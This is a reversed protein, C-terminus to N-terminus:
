DIDIITMRPTLYRNYYNNELRYIIDVEKKELYKEMKDALDWGIAEVANNNHFFYKGHNM